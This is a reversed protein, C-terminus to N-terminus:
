HCHAFAPPGFRVCAGSVDKDIVTQDGLALVAPGIQREVEARYEPESCRNERRAEIIFGEKARRFAPHEIFMEDAFGSPQSICWAFCVRVTKALTSGKAIDQDHAGARGSDGGCQFSCFGSLADDQDLLIIDEAGREDAIRLLQITCPGFFTRVANTSCAAMNKRACRRGTIPFM